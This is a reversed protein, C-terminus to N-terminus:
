PNPESRVVHDNARTSLINKKLRRQKHGWRSHMLVGVVLLMFICEGVTVWLLMQAGQSTFGYAHMGVGLLNVGIWAYMVMLLGCISAFATGLDGIIKGARAHLVAACWLIILLAGNEKPDWGWFRGWAQDAWMGGLLTGLFTFTLGFVIMAYLIRATEATTDSSKGFLRRLLYVHGVIGAILCGAYGLAITVIHTALWFNNNLVATLIGMSDGDSGFISSLHLFLFGAMSAIFIGLRKRQAYEVILGLVICVWAVFIFTEYMTTVPPRGMILMRAVIGATHPIAGIVLLCLSCTATWKQAFFLALLSLILALGYLIKAILFPNVKNYLLELDVWRIRSGEKVANNIVKCFQVAAANKKSVDEARYADRLRLLASLSPDNRSASGYFKVFSWPSQWDIRSASDVPLVCLFGNQAENSIAFLARGLAIAQTDASSWSHSPVIALSKMVASLQPAHALIDLYSLASNKLPLGLQVALNSDSVTLQPASDCFTFTSALAFYTDLAIGLRMVETEVISRQRPELLSAAQAMTSIKPVSQHLQSFSYRRHKQPEVGIAEALEPNNILFVKDDVTRTPDFIADTFWGLASKGQVSQRGSFQLLVSRAYTDLPKLRGNDLITIRGLNSAPAAALFVPLAIILLILILLFNHKKGTSDKKIENNLIQVNTM